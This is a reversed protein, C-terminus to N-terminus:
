PINLIGCSQEYSEELELIADGSPKRTFDKKALIPLGTL